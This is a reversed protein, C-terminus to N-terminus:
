HGAFKCCRNKCPPFSHKHHFNSSSAELIKGQSDIILYAVSSTIAKKETKLTAAFQKGHLFSQFYRIQLSLPFIYGSTHRGYVSREKNTIQESSKMCATRVFEDHNHSYIPPMLVKVNKGLLEEKRLYGFVRCASLNINSILGMRDNEGSIYVLPSGDQLNMGGMDDMGSGGPFELNAKIQSNDKAKLLLENGAEKDNVVEILFMAYLKIAKPTNPYIQQMKDWHYEVMKIQEDIRIGLDM